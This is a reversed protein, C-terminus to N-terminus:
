LTFTLKGGVAQNELSKFQTDPYIINLFVISRPSHLAVFQPGCYLLRHLVNTPFTSNCNSNNSTNKSLTFHSNLFNIITHPISNIDYKLFTLLSEICLLHCNSYDEVNLKTKNSRVCLGWQWDIVMESEWATFWFVFKNSWELTRCANCCHVHSFNSAATFENDTVIEKIIKMKTTM